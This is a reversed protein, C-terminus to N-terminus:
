WKLVKRRITHQGDDTLLELVYMGAALASLDVQQDVHDLSLVLSGQMDFVKCNTVQSTGTEIYVKGSTPNPYLSMADEGIEPLGVYGFIVDECYSDNDTNLDVLENPFSSYPCLQQVITDGPFHAIQRHVDGLYIWTTDGPALHLNFYIQNYVVDNCIGWWTFHNVKCAYVTDQGFNQLLVKLSARVEYVGPNFPAPQTTVNYALLDILGVDGHSLNTDKRSQLSYDFYRIEHYNGVPFDETASLHTRSFAWKRSAADPLFVSDLDYYSFDHTYSHIQQFASDLQLFMLGASDVHLHSQVFAGSSFPAYAKYPKLSDTFAYISDSTLLYITDNYAQLGSISDSFGRAARMGSSDQMFLTDDKAALLGLQSNSSFMKLGGVSGEITDLPQGSSSFSLVRFGSSDQHNVYLASDSGLSLGSVDFGACDTDVWQKTWLVSGTGSVKRVFHYCGVLVDCTPMGFGLVYVGGEPAPVMEKVTIYETGTPMVPQQWQVQGLTDIKYLTSGSYFLGSNRAFVSLYSDDGQCVVAEVRQDYNDSFGIEVNLGQGQAFLGASVFVLVFLLVNKM